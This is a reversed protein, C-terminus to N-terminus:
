SIMVRGKSKTSTNLPVTAQSPKNAWKIVGLFHNLIQKKQKPWFNASSDETKHRDAYERLISKADEGSVNINKLRKETYALISKAYKSVKNLYVEAFDGYDTDFNLM